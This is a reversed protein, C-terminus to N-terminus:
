LSAWRITQAEPGPVLNKLLCVVANGTVRLLINVVNVSFFFRAASTDQVQGRHRELLESEGINAGLRIRRAGFHSQMGDGWGHQSHAGQQAADIGGLVAPCGGYRVTSDFGGAGLVLAM